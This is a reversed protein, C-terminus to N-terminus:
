QDGGFILDLDELIAPQVEELLNNHPINISAYIVISGGDARDRDTYGEFKFNCKNLRKWAKLKEIIEKPYMVSDHSSYAEVLSIVNDLGDEKPEEYDEWDENLEALSYYKYLVGDEQKMELVECADKIEGTKKNQLKM